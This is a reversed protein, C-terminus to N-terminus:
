KRLDWYPDNVHERVESLTKEAENRLEGPAQEALLAELLPVVGPLGIAGGIMGIQSVREPTPTWNAVLWQEVRARLDPRLREYTHYQRDALHWLSEAVLDASVRPDKAELLLQEICRAVEDPRMSDPLRAYDEVKV